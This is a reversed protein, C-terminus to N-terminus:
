VITHVPVLLARSSCVFKDNFTYGDMSAYFLYLNWLIKYRFM